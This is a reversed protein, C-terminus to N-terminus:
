EYYSSAAKTGKPAAKASPQPVFHFTGAPHAVGHVGNGLDVMTPFTEDYYKLGAQVGKATQQNDIIHNLVASKDAYKPDSKSLMGLRTEVGGLADSFESAEQVKKEHEKRATERLKATEVANKGAITDDWHQEQAINHATKRLTEVHKQAQELNFKEAARNMEIRKAERAIDMQPGALPHSRNFRTIAVQERIPNRGANFADVPSRAPAPIMGMQPAPPPLNPNALGGPQPPNAAAARFDEAARQAGGDAMEPLPGPASFTQPAAPATVQPTSSSTAQAQDPVSAITGDGGSGLPAPASVPAAPPIVPPPTALATMAGPPVYSASSEGDRLDPKGKNAALEARMAQENDYPTPAGLQPTQRAVFGVNGDGMSSRFANSGATGANHQFAQSVLPRITEPNEGKDLRTVAAAKQDMTLGPEDVIQQRLSDSKNPGYLQGAGTSFNAGPGIYPSGAKIQLIGGPSSILDDPLPAPPPAGDGPTGYAFRPLAKPMAGKLPVVHIPSASTVVEPNPLGDHQPDGVIATHPADGGYALQPTLPSNPASFAGAAANAERQAFSAGLLPFQAPDLTGM